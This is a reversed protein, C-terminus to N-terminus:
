TSNSFNMTIANKQIVDMLGDGCSGQMLLLLEYFMVVLYIPIMLTSDYLLVRRLWFFFRSQVTFIGYNVNM